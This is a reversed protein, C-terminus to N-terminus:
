KECLVQALDNLLDRLVGTMIIFDTDFRDQIDETSSEEALAIVSDPYTISQLTFDDKLTFTVQDNWTLSIQSIECGEKLLTQMSAAFLDQEACRIMRRQNSPDQFVCNNEITLNKPANNNRLWNAMLNSIKKINLPKAEIDACTKKFSSTFMEVKKPSTSNLILLSNKTDIYAYIKKIKGFAQPILSFYVASKLSYKEQSSVKQKRISEIEKIKEKLKQQVVSAPLLKEEIQLCILLCGNSAYVLPGNDEDLPSTWGVSALLGPPCPKFAFSSLQVELASISCCPMTEPLKFLRTQKFWKM